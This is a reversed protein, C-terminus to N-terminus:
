LSIEPRFHQEQELEELGKVVKEAIEGYVQSVVCDPESVVIPLGEDSGSRIGVELPVEGLFKMGMEDATKRAGGKGFIYSPENCNPCKFYSMNELIGLIPVNVKSFMKAGRRADMLAVDQPTSVILGGSLQLRQSISIQADGTGPPMDVVLIDLIGWDVGRTMQELAKMVMPGRWVIAAGEEVLSGMSICKVGYSEIPIMKRDQSVEPKGHLRMMMPISPGYIDADLLGVRLQCKNALSVALNVKGSAVAIIDKIGEIKLNQTNPATGRGVAFGRVGGLTFHKFFGKM